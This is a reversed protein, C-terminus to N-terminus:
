DFIMILAEKLKQCLNKRSSAILTRLGTTRWHENAVLAQLEGISTQLEADLDDDFRGIQLIPDTLHITHDGPSLVM